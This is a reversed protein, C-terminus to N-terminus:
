LIKILKIKKGLFKKQLFINYFQKKFLSVSINGLPVSNYNRVGTKHTHTEAREKRNIM